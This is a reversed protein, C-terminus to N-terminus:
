VWRVESLRVPQSALSRSPVLVLLHSHIHWSELRLKGFSSIAFDAPASEILEKFSVSAPITAASGAGQLGRLVDLEIIEPIDYLTEVM